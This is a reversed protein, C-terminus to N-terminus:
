KKQKIRQFMKSKKTKNKKYGGRKNHKTKSLNM